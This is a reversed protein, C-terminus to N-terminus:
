AWLHADTRADILQANMHVKSGVRRVSGELITAVNLEAAIKKLNRSAADRYALTSTRSIVTLDRIKALTTIVDDQVGDAFCENEKDTSLNAFPLM